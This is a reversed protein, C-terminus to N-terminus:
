GWFALLQVGISNGAGSKNRVRVQSFCGALDVEELAGVTTAPKGTEIIFWTANDVTAEIDYSGGVVSQTVLVTVKQASSVSLNESLADNAIVSDKTFRRDIYSM